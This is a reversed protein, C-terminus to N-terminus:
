FSNLAQSSVHIYCVQMLVFYPVRELKPVKSGGNHKPIEDTQAATFTDSYVADSVFCFM